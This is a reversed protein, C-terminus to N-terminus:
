FIVRVAIQLRRANTGDPFGQSAIGNGLGSVPTLVGVRQGNALGAPLQSTALYAITNVATNFQTNFVNFAELMVSVRIRETIPLNRALRADVEYRPGTLLSNVPLFPVRAWGGSGNLSSTYDATSASFPQGQLLAIATAPQSSALTTLTSLQWGNILYRAAVSKSPTFTPQWLWQIVAQHRQDFASLGRDGNYNTNFTASQATGFPANQGTNDVSHSFTYSADVSLGHSMRKHLQVALANYFSSGGNEIQYAHAFNGNVKSTWFDTTYTGVPQGAANDITYTQTGTPPVLNADQTTWLKLGRTHLASLTVTANGPIQREVAVALEQAYPTPFKAQSYTVNTLGNPISSAFHFINPFVPAGTQNPSASVSTQYLANGLFLADLLQGTYPAYYFGFGARVVTKENVLYAVGVRPSLDLYPSTVSATQFFATNTQTPQTLYPKEYRLAFDVTLRANARWTDEAYANYQHWQLTRAMTGLTQSFTTYNRQGSLGFDQAFATLTPYTYFGAANSLSNLYDSTRLLEFGAKITHSGLTWNGNDILQLRHESPLVATYAQPDGVNTGAISIGLPATPLGTPTPYEAVRDQFWGIRFDNTVQSSGTVTWGAKAFRTKERLVPDGLMGGNPAVVETEALSPAHWELANADFSFNNRESRRYDVKILGRLSRDFLPTLVNMQSQLFRTAVACQAATAQCNSPLIRTGTPDALLPNTIRNLGQGSRDLYDFNAFFFITDAKIPGGFDAGAQHQQQRTNYGASYRDAAQLSRDRFFEYAEGHYSNTGSRTTADVLGGMTGGFEASYAASAVHFDQVAETSLQNALGAREPFYTNTTSLGDTLFLNSFPVAHFVWTGPLSDAATVSPALPVLADVRQGSTPTEFVQEPSTTAAFGSKLVDLQRLEAIPRATAGNETPQLVISFNLKQGTSVTFDESQWSTFEKRTVKLRYGAAPVVTPQYFVGDDTTSMDREVGLSANSLVVNADPLGFGNPDLVLGGVGGFGASAQGWATASSLLLVLSLFPASRM